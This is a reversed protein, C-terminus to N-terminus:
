LTSIGLTRLDEGTSEGAASAFSSFAEAVARRERRTLNELIAALEQRRRETVHTVLQHGHATLELLMEVEGVSGRARQVWGSTIMREIVHLFVAPTSNMTSSLESLGKPGSAELITMTRFEAMGVLELADTVSRAVVGLLAGSAALTAGVTDEAHVPDVDSQDGRRSRDDDRRATFSAIEASYRGPQQM